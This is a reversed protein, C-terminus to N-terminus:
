GEGGQEGGRRREEKTNGNDEDRRGGRTTAMREEVATSDECEDFTLIEDERVSMGLVLNKTSQQKM